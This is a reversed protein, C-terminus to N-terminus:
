HMCTNEMCNLLESWTGCHHGQVDMWLNGAESAPWKSSRGPVPLLCREAWSRQNRVLSSDRTALSSASPPRLSALPQLCLHVWLQSRLCLPCFHQCATVTPPMGLDVVGGPKGYIGWVGEVRRSELKKDGIGQKLTVYLVEGLISEFVSLPTVAVLSSTM